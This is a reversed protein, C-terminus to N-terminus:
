AIGEILIGLESIHVNFSPDNSVLRAEYEFARAEFEAADLRSWTSWTPTAAPDDDTHRVWVQVDAATGIVGDCNEWDDINALRQDVLDLDNVVQVTVQATLRVKQVTVLDSGTAFAYVGSAAVGGAYDVSSVSDVDAWGDIPDAGGLELDGADAVTGSHTGSFAPHEVVTSLSTFTLVSAAKTSVAAADGPKKSTDVARAFYTGAKLPLVAVTADGSVAEGISTSQTIVAGTQAQAHRFEIAGGKQVDLDVSQNWRLVALGGAVSLTLGQLQLPAALLGYIEQRTTPGPLSHVGLANVAVASFEYIGPAIDLVQAVATATRPLDLWKPAGELRYSFEYGVVYVDDDVVCTMDARAKVGAGGRTEYLGEEIMVAGPVAVDFPNPLDTTPAAVYPLEENTSWAYVNADTERLVQAVTLTPAKEGGGVSITSEKINFTKATWGYKAFTFGITDMPVGRWASLRWTSNVTIQRRMEELEIKALRQAMTASNTWKLDIDRYRVEGNDNAVYVANTVSPFDDPQYNNAPSVFVGKVGNYSKDAAILSTVKVSGRLDHEDFTLVVPRWAGARIRWEIGSAVAHGAMSSLLGQLVGKPTESLEFAGNCTYRKETGGAALAVAEDCINASEILDATIIESGYASGYGYTADSLYDATCLASNDTYGYLGTRPDYIDDKGEVDFTIVPVGTPFLDISKTLRVYVHACGLQRHNVTWKTPVEDILEQIATQDIAGLRKIVKVYGAYKGIADGNADLPVEIGDFYLSGISKVRHGTLTIVNHFIKQGAITNVHMFTYTGGYRGRGYIWRRPQVPQRISITRDRSSFSVAAADPMKPKKQLAQSLGSLVLSSGAAMAAAAWSFTFGAAATYGVGGMGGAVVVPALAPM